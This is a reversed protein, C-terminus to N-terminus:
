IRKHTHVSVNHFRFFLSSAFSLFFLLTLSIERLVHLFLNYALLVYTILLM